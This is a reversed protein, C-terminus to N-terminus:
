VPLTATLHQARSERQAPQRLAGAGAPEGPSRPEAAHAGSAQLPAVPHRPPARFLGRPLPPQLASAVAQERGAGRFSPDGSGLDGGRRRDVGAARWEVPVDARQEDPELAPAAAAPARRARPQARGPRAVAAARPMLELNMLLVGSNFYDGPGAGGLEEAHGLMHREPVNTVAAVYHDRLDLAWLPSLSRLVITDVDLYLARGVEPLLDPLFIRYWMTTPIRGWEPLGAVLQDGILHLSISAGQDTVMQELAGLARAQLQPGHLFDVHIEGAREASLVSHLM